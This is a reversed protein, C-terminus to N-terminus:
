KQDVKVLYLKKDHIKVQKIRICQQTGNKEKTLDVSGGGAM